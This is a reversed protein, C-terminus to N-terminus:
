VNQRCEVGIFVALCSFTFSHSEANNIIRTTKIIIIFTSTKNKEQIIKIKTNQESQKNTPSIPFIYVQHIM